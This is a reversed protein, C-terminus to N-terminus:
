DESKEPHDVLIFAAANITALLYARDQEDGTFTSDGAPFYRFSDALVLLLDAVEGHEKAAERLRDIIRAHYENIMTVGLFAGPFFGAAPLPHPQKETALRATADFSM